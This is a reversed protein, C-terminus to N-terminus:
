PATVSHLKGHLKNRFMNRALNCSVNCFRECKAVLEHLQAVFGFTAQFRQLFYLRTRSEWRTIKDKNCLFSFARWKWQRHACVIAYFRSIIGDIGELIQSGTVVLKKPPRLFLPNVLNLACHMSPPDSEKFHAPAGLQPQKPRWTRCTWFFYGSRCELPKIM